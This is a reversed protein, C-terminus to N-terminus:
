LRYILLVCATEIVQVCVFSEELGSKGILFTGPVFPEHGKEAKSFGGPYWFSIGWDALGKRGSKGWTRRGPGCDCARRIGNGRM